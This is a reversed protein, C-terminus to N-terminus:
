QYCNAFLRSLLGWGLEKCICVFICFFRSIVFTFIFSQAFCIWMVMKLQGRLQLLVPGYPYDQLTSIVFMKKCIYLSLITTLSCMFMEEKSPSNSLYINSSFCCSVFNSVYINSSFFFEGLELCFYKFFFFCSVLDMVSLDRPEKTAM